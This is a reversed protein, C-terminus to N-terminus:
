QFAKFVAKDISEYNAMIRSYSANVSDRVRNADFIFFHTVVFISLLLQHNPQRELVNSLDCTYISVEKQGDTGVPVISLNM